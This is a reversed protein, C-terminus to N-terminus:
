LRTHVVTSLRPTPWDADTFRRKLHVRLPPAVKLPAGRNMSDQVMAMWVVESHHVHPLSLYGQHKSYLAECQAATKGGGM